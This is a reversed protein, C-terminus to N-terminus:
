KGVVVVSDETGFQNAVYKDAADDNEWREGDIYYKFKYENEPKLRLTIEWSGKKRELKDAKTAWDNFDGAVAVEKNAWEAPVNLTVKCITRKPTFEKTIM